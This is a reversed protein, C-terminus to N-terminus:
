ACNIAFSEVTVTCNCSCFGHKKLKERDLGGSTTIKSTDLTMQAAKLRDILRETYM